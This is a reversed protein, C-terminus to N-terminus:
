DLCGQIGRKERETLTEWGTALDSETRGIENAINSLSTGILIRKLEEPDYNELLVSNLMGRTVGLAYSISEYVKLDISDEPM